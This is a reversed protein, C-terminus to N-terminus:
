PKSGPAPTSSKTAIGALTARLRSESDLLFNAHIVVREGATVGRLVIAQGASRAGLLVERPEFDEARQVFVVQRTGTDLVASDPIVVGSQEELDLSVDAFMGPKLILGPNAFELRAKLTHSEVNVTPYIFTVQGTREVGPEYTLTLRASEGIRLSRAEFEYFEAEVWVHSLDTITFLDMGPDVQQGEFAGKATVYGSVPAPLGVTRLPKGSRELAELFAQPVGFLALRRRAAEVLEEGGRRVEPLSSVSFQAAAQRARLFEEQTALLEPSYITLMPEGARVLQGTSNVRLTEIWGSVKTHVHHVRTEDAIVLGVTRTSSKLVSQVAEVTQVDALRLGSRAITLNTLGEPTGTSPTSPKEVEYVPVFDMGMADKAPVPSTVTPPMPSRYYLIKRADKATTATAATASAPAKASERCSGFLLLLALAGPASCITRRTM